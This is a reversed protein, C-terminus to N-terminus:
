IERDFNIFWIIHINIIPNNSLHQNGHKNEILSLDCPKCIQNLFKTKMANDSIIQYSGGCSSMTTPSSNYARVGCPVRSNSERHQHIMRYHAPSASIGRHIKGAGSFTSQQLSAVIQDGKKKLHIFFNIHFYKM